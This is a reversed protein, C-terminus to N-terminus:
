TTAAGVVFMLVHFPQWVSTLATAVLSNSCLGGRLKSFIRPGRRILGIGVSRPEASQSVVRHCVVTTRSM